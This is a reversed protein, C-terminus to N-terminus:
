KNAGGLLPQTTALHQLHGEIHLLLADLMHLVRLLLTRDSIPARRKWPGSPSTTVRPHQSRWRQLMAHGMVLTMTTTIMVGAVRYFRNMGQGTWYGPCGPTGGSANLINPQYWFPYLDLQVQYWVPRSWALTPPPKALLLLLFLLSLARLM